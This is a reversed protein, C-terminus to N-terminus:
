NFLLSYKHKYTRLHLKMGLDGSGVTKSFFIAPLWNKKKGVHKATSFPLSTIHLQVLYM